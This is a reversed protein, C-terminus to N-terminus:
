VFETLAVLEDFRFEEVLVMLAAAIEPQVISIEEIMDLVREARGQVIADHLAKRWEAPFLRLDDRTLCIDILSAQAPAVMRYEYKVGLHQAIKEFLEAIRYPKVIFDDCDMMDHITEANDLVSGTLAIIITEQGDPSSKIRRAAERGDMIPMRKDMWILHPRWAAWEAVAEEGNAATHVAFDASLLLEKLAFRSAESDDVVLLRIEGQQPLLNAVNEYSQETQTAVVATKVANVATVRVEVTFASGEGLKSEVTIDGDMLQAYARSISLGLGTGTQLARGSATQEFPAFLAAMEDPAIGVGSDSVTFQLVMDRGDSQTDDRERLPTGGATLAIEGDDTFKIANGLLNILIQRLKRNDAYIHRPLDPAIDVTLSVGKNQALVTFMSELSSLQQYLDFECANLVAQNAEVKSSELLENILELLHVGSDEITKLHSQCPYVATERRMLQTYALIVNLPTRLEHSMNGLFTSKAQNAIEAAEKAQRLEEVTDNLDNTRDLVRQELEMNLQHLSAEAQKRGTVDHIISYLRVSGDIQVPGAYVEVDRLEGSALRHRFDFYLQETTKAHHMAQRIEESPLDIIEMVTMSILTENDYGYFVCAANNAEMIRGNEPDVILKIAQNAEFMQRYRAESRQLKSQIRGQRRISEGLRWMVFGLGALGLLWLIGIAFSENVLTEQQRGLLDQMPLSVGVGGRVDGVEYGQQQHCKLCKKTVYVPQMLRLYPAADIKTFESVETAGEEFALLAAREWEDPMNEPQMLNLSTIHGAVGYLDAYEENMQRIMYAPNLLTLKVGSPTTIDRDPVHSMYPSPPTREDIPVYVGGHSTAWLRFVQDKNFYTRAERMAALQTLDHERYVGAMLLLVVLFSWMLALFLVYRRLRYLRTQTSKNKTATFKRSPNM